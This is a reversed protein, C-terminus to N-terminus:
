VALPVDPMEAGLRLMELAGRAPLGTQEWAQALAARAAVYRPSAAALPELIRIAAQPRGRRGQYEALALSAATAGPDAALAAEARERARNVDEDELLAALLQARASAPLLEAARRAERAPRHDGADASRKEALAVALDMRARGEAEGSASAARKELTEVLSTLRVPRPAPGSPLPPLPPLAATRLPLARGGRDALRALLLLEGQDHCLKVLLRNAGRRLTVEVGAQDLRAPHYVNSALVETGNVWARFAGSAGLWLLVRQERPSDVVALAYVTVERAPRVASGLALVGRAQAEPPLARWGVERAKGPFRAGLDLGAEPPFANELGRRGENDFPGAVWWRRVFGLKALEAEAKRLNGRAREVGALRWRALARVEAHARPDDAVAEYARAAKSADALTPELEHIRALLVIARPDTRERELEAVAAAFEAAAPDAPAAGPAVLALSLALSLLPM